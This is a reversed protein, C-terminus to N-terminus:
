LDPVAGDPRYKMCALRLTEKAKAPTLRDVAYGGQLGAVPAARFFVETTGPITM